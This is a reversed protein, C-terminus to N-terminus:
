GKRATNGKVRLSVAPGVIVQALETPEHPAVVRPALSRQRFQLRGSCIGDNKSSSPGRVSMARVPIGLM